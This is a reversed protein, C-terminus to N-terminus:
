TPQRGQKSAQGEQDRQVETMVKGQNSMIIQLHGKYESTEPNFIECEKARVVQSKGQRLIEFLPIKCAGYYFRSQADFIDITLYREKLYNALNMHEDKIKSKSPDVEFNIQVMNDAMFAERNEKIKRTSSKMLLYPTSPKLVPKDGKMQEYNHQLSMYDTIIPQFTFFRM